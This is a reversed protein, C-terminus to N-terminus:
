GSAWRAALDGRRLTGIRHIVQRMAAQDGQDGRRLYASLTHLDRMASVTSFGPWQTVDYGYAEGFQRLQDETRGFRIGQYTNVLDLERPGLSTEDWDGLVVRAGDWLLNGPYADGHIHGLGLPFQLGDYASLLNESQDLLWARDDESLFRTARAQRALSTLPTYRPLDMSPMALGHLQRLLDGLHSPEPLPRDGQSYHRWCTVTWTGVIVPQEVDLPKTAPFDQEVLWRTVSIARKDREFSGRRMRVVADEAPLLYVANAHHHLCRADHSKLELLQCAQDLVAADEASIASKGAPRHPRRSM